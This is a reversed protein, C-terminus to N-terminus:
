ILNVGLEQRFKNIDFLKGPCSKRGEPPLGAMEQAERHGIVNNIPIPMGKTALYEILKKTFMIALIWPKDPPVELDWNGVICIGFSKKNFGGDKAHAGMKDMERGLMIHYDDKIREIGFHYGIENWGNVEMHYKRIADWNVSDGDKTLSHHIVIYQVPMPNLHFPWSDVEKRKERIWTALPIDEM